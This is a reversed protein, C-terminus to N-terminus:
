CDILNAKAINKLKELSDSLKFDITNEDIEHDAKQKNFKIDITKKEDIGELNNSIKDIKVDKIEEDQEDELQGVMVQDDKIM